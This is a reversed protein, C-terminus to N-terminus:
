KGNHNGRNAYDADVKAKWQRSNKRNHRIDSM